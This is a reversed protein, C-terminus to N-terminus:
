IRTALLCGDHQVIAKFSSTLVTSTEREVIVAPGKIVDGSKLGTREHIGAELYAGQSAELLRRTKGQRVINGEAVSPVREWRHL